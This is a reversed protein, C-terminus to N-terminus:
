HTLSFSHFLKLIFELATAVGDWANKMADKEKFGKHSKYLVSLSRVIESLEEERPIDLSVKEIKEM